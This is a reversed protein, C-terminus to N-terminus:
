DQGTEDIYTGKDIASGYAEAFYSFVMQSTVEDGDDMKYHKRIVQELQEGYEITAGKSNTAKKILSM